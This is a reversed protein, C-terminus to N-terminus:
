VALAAVLAITRAAVGATTDPAVTAGIDVFATSADVDAIREDDAGVREAGVLATVARWSVHAAAGAAAVVDILASRSSVITIRQGCAGVRGARIHAGWSLFAYSSKLFSVNSM